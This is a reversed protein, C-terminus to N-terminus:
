PTTRAADIGAQIQRAAQTSSEKSFVFQIAAGIFGALVLQLNQGGSDIPDLRSIFLMLGGGVIVVLAILYTFILKVTDSQM